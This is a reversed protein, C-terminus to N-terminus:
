YQKFNVEEEEENRMQKVGKIKVLFMITCMVKYFKSKKKKQDNNKKDKFYTHFRFRM